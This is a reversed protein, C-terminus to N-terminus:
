PSTLQTIKNTESICQIVIGAIEDSILFAFQSTETTALLKTITRVEKLTLHIKSDQVICACHVLIKDKNFGDAPVHSKICEQKMETFIEKKSIVSEKREVVNEKETISVKKMAMMLFIMLASLFAIWNLNRWFHYQDFHRVRVISLVGVFVVAIVFPLFVVAILWPLLSIIETEAIYGVDLAVLIWISELFINLIVISSTIWYKKAM